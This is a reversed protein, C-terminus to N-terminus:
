VLRESHGRLAEVLGEGRRLPTDGFEPPLQNRYAFLAPGDKPAGPGEGTELLDRWRAVQEKTITGHDRLNGCAEAVEKAADWKDMGANMLETMARAATGKIIEFASPNPPRHGLPAPKFMPSAKGNRIDTMAACLRTIPALISPDSQFVRQQLLFHCLDHMARWAAAHGQPGSDLGDAGDIKAAERLATVLELWSRPDPQEIPFDEPAGNGETMSTTCGGDAGCFPPKSTTM